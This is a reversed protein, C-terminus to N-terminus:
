TDTHETPRVFFAVMSASGQHISTRQTVAMSVMRAQTQTTVLGTLPQKNLRIHVSGLLETSFM